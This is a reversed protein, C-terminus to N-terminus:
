NNPRPLLCAYIPMFSLEMVLGAAETSGPKRLTVGGQPTPANLDFNTAKFGATNLVAGHLSVHLLMVPNDPFHADLDDRTLDRNEDMATVDYGYGLIWEGAKLGRKEKYAKLTAILDAFTRVAGAPPASVNAWSALRVAYICHSHGDLFGPVLTRGRLDVMETAPGRWAMVEDKSGVAAIKGDAVAVAVAEAEPRGDDMTVVDGGFFIREAIGIPDNSM